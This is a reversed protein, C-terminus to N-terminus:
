QVGHAHPVGRACDPCEVVESGDPATQVHTEPIDIHVANGEVRYAQVQQEDQAPAPTAHHNIHATIELATPDSIAPNRCLRCAASGKPRSGTFKGGPGRTANKGNGDKRRRPGLTGFLEAMAAFQSVMLESLKAAMTGNSEVSKVLAIELAQGLDFSPAPPANQANPPQPAPTRNFWGMNPGPPPERWLLLPQGCARVVGM